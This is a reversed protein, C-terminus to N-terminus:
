DLAATGTARPRANACVGPGHDHASNLTPPSSEHAGIRRAVAPQHGRVLQRRDLRDLDEALRALLDRELVAAPQDVRGAVVEQELELFGGARQLRRKAELLEHPLRVLAELRVVPHLEPHAHM